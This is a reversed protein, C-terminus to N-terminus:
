IDDCYDDDDDDDDDGNRHRQEYKAMAQIRAM